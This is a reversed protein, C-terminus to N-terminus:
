LVATEMPAPEAVPLLSRRRSRVKRVGELAAYLGLISWSLITLPWFTPPQYRYSIVNLGPEVQVARFIFDGALNPRAKGNVTVRWGRAWRDTVLLWGPKAARYSFQLANPTYRLDSIAARTCLTADALHVDPAPLDNHAPNLNSVYRMEDPSHLFLAPVGHQHAENVFLAFAPQSVPAAVAEPALWIRQPGLVLNGVAPDSTLYEDFRNTMTVFNQLTAVRLPVNDNTHFTGVIAPPQLQRNLNPLVLTKRHLQDMAQWTPVDPKAYLTPASIFLALAADAAAIAVFSRRWARVSIANRQVLVAMVAVGVWAIVAHLIAWPWQDPRKDTQHAVYAFVVVGAYGAAVGALGFFRTQRSGYAEHLDRTGLAALVALAFLFYCRFLAPNRFYRTPIVVDYLWARLPLHNGVCCCAIFLAFAALFWRWGSRRRLAWIAFFFVCSGAYVSTMSVDTEPWIPKPQLNLIALYPSALTTFAPPPLLNSTISEHKTRPGVRDSYGRTNTMFGVYIPSLIAAGLVAILVVAATNRGLALRWERPGFFTWAAAWIAVFFGTLITLQPYGGLASLGYLVGAQVAPWVRRNELAAHLRWVIWPLFSVSYISSTHEAHGTYFGSAIFGLTVVLAGWLPAGLRRALLLMGVGGFFWVILWYAVFGTWPSPSLLGVALMLPSTVGMEPEVLDPSGGAVWPDWLLLKGAKIHDAVLSFQPGFFVQADWHPAVTGILLRWNPLLLVAALILLAPAWRPKCTNM